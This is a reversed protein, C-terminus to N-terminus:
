NYRLKGPFIKIKRYLDRIIVFDRKRVTHIHMVLYRFYTPGPLPIIGLKPKMEKQPCDIFFWGVQIGIYPKHRIVLTICVIVYVSLNEMLNAIFFPTM